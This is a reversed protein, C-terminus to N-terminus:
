TLRWSVGSSLALSRTQSQAHPQRSAPGLFAFVAHLFRSGMHVEDGDGAAGLEAVPPFVDPFRRWVPHRDGARHGHRPLTSKCACRLLSGWPPRSRRALIGLDLLTFGVGPSFSPRLLLAPLWVVALFPVLRACRGSAASLNKAKVCRARKGAAHRDALGLLGARERFHDFKSGPSTMLLLGCCSLFTSMTTAYMAIPSGTGCTPVIRCSESLMYVTIGCVAIFILTLLGYGLLGLRSSGPEAYLEKWYM